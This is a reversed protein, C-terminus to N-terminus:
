YRFEMRHSKGIFELQKKMSEKLPLSIVMWKLIQMRDLNWQFKRSGYFWLVSGEQVNSSNPMPLYNFPGTTGFRDFLRPSLTEPYTWRGGTFCFSHGFRRPDLKVQFEVEIVSM